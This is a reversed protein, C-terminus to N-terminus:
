AMFEIGINKQGKEIDLEAGTKDLYEAEEHKTPTSDESTSPNSHKASREDPGPYM